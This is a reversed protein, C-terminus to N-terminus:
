KINDNIKGDQQLSTHPFLNKKKARPSRRRDLVPFHVVRQRNTRYNHKFICFFIYRQLVINLIGLNNVVHFDM